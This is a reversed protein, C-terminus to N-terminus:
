GSEGTDNPEGVLKELREVREKLEATTPKRPSKEDLDISDDDFFTRILADVPLGLADAFKRISARHPRGGNELQRVRERTVRLRESLEDLTLGQRIRELRILGGFTRPNLPRVDIDRPWAEGEQIMRTYHPTKCLGVAYQPNECLPALCREARAEPPLNHELDADARVKMYHGPCYGRAKAVKGCGEFACKQAEITSKKPNPEATGTRAFRAYHKSCLGRTIADLECGEISCPGENVRRQRPAEPDGYKYWRRYHYDCWGRAHSKRECGDIQCEASAAGIEASM